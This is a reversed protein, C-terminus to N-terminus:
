SADGYGSKSALSRIAEVFPQDKIEQVGLSFHATAKFFDPFWPLENLEAMPRFVHGDGRAYRRFEGDGTEGVDNVVFVSGLYYRKPSEGEGVVFWVTNGLLENVPKDTLLGLPDDDHLPRGMRQTNHYAVFHRLPYSWFPIVASPLPVSASHGLEAARQSASGGYHQTM